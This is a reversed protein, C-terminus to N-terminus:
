QTRGLRWLHQRQAQAVGVVAMGRTAPGPRAEALAHTERAALMTRLPNGESAELIEGIAEEEIETGLERSARSLGEYWAAETIPRLHHEVGQFDLMAGRRFLTQLVSPESGAFLYALPGGPRRLRDRLEGQLATADPWDAVAQVEDIFVVARRDVSAAEVEIGDLVGALQQVGEGRGSIAELLTGTAERTADDEIAAVM